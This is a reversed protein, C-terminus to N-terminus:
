IKNPKSRTKLFYSPLFFMIFTQLGLYSTKQKASTHLIWTTIAKMRMRNYLYRRAGVLALKNVLLTKEKHKSDDVKLSLAIELKRHVDLGKSITVSERHRRYIFINEPIYHAKVPTDNVRLNGLRVHHGFDWINGDNDGQMYNVYFEKKILFGNPPLSETLCWEWINKIIEKDGKGYKIMEIESADQDIIGDEFMIQNKGFWLIVNKDKNNKSLYYLRDLAGKCLRDDDHHLMVLDFQCMRAMNNQNQVPSVPPNNVIHQIKNKVTVHNIVAKNKEVYDKSSNDGILIEGILDQNQEAIGELAFKLYDPRNYTPIFISIQDKM